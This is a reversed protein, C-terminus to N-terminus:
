LLSTTRRPTKGLVELIADLLDPFHFPKAVYAAFGADRSRTAHAETAHATVAIARTARDALADRERIRRVVEFGDLGPMALDCLLLDAPQREWEALALAGSTAISVRAGEARLATALLEAADLNDDTVLVHVGQLVLRPAERPEHRIAAKAPVHPIARLRVTFTAGLGPGRSAAEITGGHLETLEKVISLGLGLGGHERTLSGDAQRFRDFVYPLFAPPIGIGSDTVVIECEAGLDHVAVRVSGGATNTFKVANSLLNSVIQQLRDRDGTVLCPADPLHVDFAIEKARTSPRIAEAAAAVVDRLDVPGTRLVLKGSVIRSVDVLDEILRSQARANREISALGKAMTEPNVASSTLIHSWGVIANLPTRLEHSMAALFEDKLRSAERERGLLEEREVERRRLQDSAEALRQLMGSLARALDGVEGDGVAPLSPAVTDPQISRAAAALRTIPATISRHLRDAVAVAIVGVVALLVLVILATALLRPGIAGLDRRVQVLGLTEGNRVVYVLGTAVGFADDASRTQSCPQGDRVYQAFLAGDPLYLCAQRVSPLVRLAALTRTADTPDRFAVAAQTNEAVITALSTTEAVVSSRYRWLDIATLGVTAIALTVAVVILAVTVLKRHLPQRAFWRRM